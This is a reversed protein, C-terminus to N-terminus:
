LGAKIADLVARSTSENGLSGVKVTASTSNDTVKKLDIDVSTGDAMKARVLGQLVDSRSSVKEFRMTDVAREAAAFARDLPADLTANLERTVANFSGSEPPPSSSCGAPVGALMAALVTGAACLVAKEIKM